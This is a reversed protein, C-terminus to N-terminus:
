RLSKVEKAGERRLIQEADESRDSKVLVVARGEKVETELHRGEQDPVGWDVFAGTLGGVTAGGLAAALPGAALLPGIGPVALLGASALLGAGAGVGAGWATGDSLNEGREDRKTVLSIEKDTFGKRELSDVAREAQDATEFTAVIKGV